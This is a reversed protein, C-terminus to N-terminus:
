FQQVLTLSHQLRLLYQLLTPCLAVNFPAPRRLLLYQYDSAVLLGCLASGARHCADCRLPGLLECRVIVVGVLVVAKARARVVGALEVRDAGEYVRVRRLAGWCVWHRM